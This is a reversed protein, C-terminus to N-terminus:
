SDAFMEKIVKEWEEPKQTGFLISKGSTLEIQVGMNGKTNFANSGNRGWRIGWGGFEKLPSYKRVYIKAIESRLISHRKLQFPFFRYYFADERLETQLNCLYLFSIAIASILLQTEFM